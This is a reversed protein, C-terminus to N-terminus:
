TVIDRARDQEFVVGKEAACAEAWRRFDDASDQCPAVSQLHTTIIHCICDQLLRSELHTVAPPSM